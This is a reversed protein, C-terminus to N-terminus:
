RAARPRALRAALYAALAVKTEEIMVRRDRPSSTAAVLLLGSVLHVATRAVDKRERAALAPAVPKLSEALRRTFRDGWLAGTAALVESAQAGLWAARYGPEEVWFRAFADVVDGTARELDSGASRLAGDVVASLREGHRELLGVLLAERSPFYEYVTGVAARAEKAVANTTLADWGDRDLIRATADLLAERRQRAREQVPRRVPRDAASM